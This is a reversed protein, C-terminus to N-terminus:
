LASVSASIGSKMVRRRSWSLMAASARSNTMRVAALDPYTRSAVHPGLQVQGQLDLDNRRFPHFPSALVAHRETVRRYRQEPEDRSYFAAICNKTAASRRRSRSQTAPRTDVFRHM